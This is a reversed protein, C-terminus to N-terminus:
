QRWYSEAVAVWSDLEVDLVENVFEVGDVEIREIVGDADPVFWVYVSSGTDEAAWVMAQLEESGNM